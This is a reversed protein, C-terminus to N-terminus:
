EIFEKAYCRLVSQQAAPNRSAYLIVNNIPLLRDHLSQFARFRARYLSLSLSLSLSFGPLLMWSSLLPSCLFRTLAFAVFTRFDYLLLEFAGPGSVLLVLM